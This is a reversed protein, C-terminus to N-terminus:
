KRIFAIDQLSLIGESKEMIKRVITGEIEKNVSQGRVDIMVRQKM